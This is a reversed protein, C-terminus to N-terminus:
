FLQPKMIMCCNPNDLCPCCATFLTRSTCSQLCFDNAAISLSIVVGRKPTSLVHPVLCNAMSWLRNWHFSPNFDQNAALILRYGLNGKCDIHSCSSINQSQWHWSRVNHSDKSKTHDREIKQWLIHSSTCNTALWNRACDRFRSSKSGLRSDWHKLLRCRWNEVQRRWASISYANLPRTGGRGSKATISCM